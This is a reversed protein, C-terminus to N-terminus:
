EEPVNRLAYQYNKASKRSSLNGDARSQQVCSPASLCNGSTLMAANINWLLSPKM